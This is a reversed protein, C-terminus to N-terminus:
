NRGIKFLHKRASLGKAKWFGQIEGSKLCSGFSIRTVPLASSLRQMRDIHYM